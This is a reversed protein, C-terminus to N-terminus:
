VRDIREIIELLQENAYAWNHCKFSRLDTIATDCKFCVLDEIARPTEINVYKQEGLIVRVLMEKPHQMRLASTVIDLWSTERGCSPCHRTDGSLWLPAGISNPAMGLHHEILLVDDDSTVWKEKGPLSHPSDYIQRFVDDSVPITTQTEKTQKKPM